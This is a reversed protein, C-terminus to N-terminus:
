KNVAVGNSPWIMWVDGCFLEVIEYKKHKTLMHKITADPVRSDGNRKYLRCKDHVEGFGFLNTSAELTTNFKKDTTTKIEVNYTEPM